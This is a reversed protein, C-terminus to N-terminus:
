DDETEFKLEENSGVAYALELLETAFWAAYEADNNFSVELAPFMEASSRGPLPSGSAGADAFVEQAADLEGDALWDLPVNADIRGAKISLKLFPTGHSDMVTLSAGDGRQQMAVVADHIAEEQATMGAEPELGIVGQDECGPLLLAAPLLSVIVAFFLPFRRNSM